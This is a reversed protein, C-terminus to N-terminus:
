RASGFKRLIDLGGELGARSIAFKGGELDAVEVRVAARGYECWCFRLPRWTTRVSSPHM